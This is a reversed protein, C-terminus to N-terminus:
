FLITCGSLMLEVGTAAMICAVSGYPIGGKTTDNLRELGTPLPKPMVAPVDFGHMRKLAERILPTINRSESGWVIYGERGGVWDLRMINRGHRNQIYVRKGHGEMKHGQGKSAYYMGARIKRIFAPHMVSTITIM